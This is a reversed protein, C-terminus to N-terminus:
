RADRVGDEHEGRGAHRLADILNDVAEMEMRRRCELTFSGVHPTLLVQPYRSLPGTYPEDRFADVWAGAVQGTDLAECLADEGVVDGRSANLVFAGRKLRYLETKGLITEAGSAHVTVMDAVPLADTLSALTVRPDPVTAVPDVAVVRARFALLLEAVRRGIRGFGIVVVTKGELQAGAVRTWRGEHLEANMPVTQRLLTLAAALTLEAVASTTADPTNRVEIGLRRAADVDVNSMGTGSRSIVRLSSRELVSAKLPELGAILGVVGPLLEMLEEETLRRGYPNQLVDLGAQRLRELPAPDVAGFSSAGILIRPM